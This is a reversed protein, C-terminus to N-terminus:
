RTQRFLSAWFFPIFMKVMNAGGFAGHKTLRSWLVLVTAAYSIAVLLGVVFVVILFAPWKMFDFSAFYWIGNRRVFQATTSADLSNGDEAKYHVRVPVSASDGTIAPAGDNPVVSLEYPGTSFHRLNKDREPGSLTPDLVDAPAKARNSLAALLGTIQDADSKSPSQASLSIVVGLLGLMVLRITRKYNQIKIM